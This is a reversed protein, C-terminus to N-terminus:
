IDTSFFDGLAHFAHAQPIGVLGNQMVISSLMAMFCIM